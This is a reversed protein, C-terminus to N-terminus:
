KCCARINIESYAGYQCNAHRKLSSDGFYVEKVDGATSSCEYIKLTNLLTVKMDSINPRTEIEYRHSSISKM